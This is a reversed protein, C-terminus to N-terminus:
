VFLCRATEMTDVNQVRDTTCSVEGLGTSVTGTRVSGGTGFGANSLRVAVIKRAFYIDGNDKFYVYASCGGSNRHQSVQRVGPLGIM